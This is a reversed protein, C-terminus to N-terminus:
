VVKRFKRGSMVYHGIFRECDPCGKMFYGGRIHKGHNMKTAMM